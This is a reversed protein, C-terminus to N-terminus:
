WTQAARPNLFTRSHKFAIEQAENIDAGLGICFRREELAVDCAGLEWGAERTALEIAQSERWRENFPLASASVPRYSIRRAQPASIIVEHGFGHWHLMLSVPIDPFPPM